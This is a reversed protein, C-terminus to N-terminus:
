FFERRRSATRNAIPGERMDGSPRRPGFGVECAVALKTDYKRSQAVCVRVVQRVEAIRSALRM